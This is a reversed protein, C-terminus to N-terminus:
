KNELIRDIQFKTRIAMDIMSEINGVLMETDDDVDKIYGLNSTLIEKITDLEAAITVLIGESTLKM